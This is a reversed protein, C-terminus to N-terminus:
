IVEFYWVNTRPDFMEEGESEGVINRWTNDELFGISRSFIGSSMLLLLYSAAVFFWRLSLKGAKTVIVQCLNINGAARHIILGALCGMVIAAVAALPISSQAESFSVGQNSCSNGGILMVTEIGERVVTIFPVWFFVQSSHMKYVPFSKTAKKDVMVNMGSVSEKDESGSDKDSEIMTLGDEIQGVPTLPSVASQEQDEFKSELKTTMKDYLHQGKLFAFATVTLFVSAILGFIGEYLLESSEFANM